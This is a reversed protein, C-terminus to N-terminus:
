DDDLSVTNTCIRSLIKWSRWVQFIIPGVSSVTIGCALRNKRLFSPLCFSDGGTASYDLSSWWPRRMRSTEIDCVVVCWLRYSEEPRTILEDCLGRGSLVCCECCVSMWAGPPIRVWVRLLRSATSRRRLGRPWQSRSDTNYEPLLQILKFLWNKSIIENEHKLSVCKGPWLIEYVRVFLDAGGNYASLRADRGKIREVQRLGKFVSNFGM